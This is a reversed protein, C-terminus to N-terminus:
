LYIDYKRDEKSINLLLAVIAFSALLSSGGYSIFPLPLGKTPLLGMCVGLNVLAQITFLLLLSIGFLRAFIEKKRKLILLGATFFAIYLGIVFLSGIFGTEEAIISFIFDNYSAPLFFLKQRSLGLGNGFLGGSGIALYSQILQFGIDHQNQWPNLFAIIRNKLYSLKYFILPSLFLFLLLLSVLYKLKVGALFSIIIFLLFIFVASGVDPQKLLLIIIISIIIFPPIIIKKFDSLYNRKREMFDSLYLAFVIKVFEVPQFNFKGIKIWRKAGGVERGIILVLILSLIALFILFRAKKRLNDLPYLFLVIALPLAFVTAILQRKLFYFSDAYVRECYIASSSYIFVYGTVLLAASIILLKWRLKRM